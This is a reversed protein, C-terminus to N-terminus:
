KRHSKDGISRLKNELRRKGACETFNMVAGRSKVAVWDKGESCPTYPAGRYTEQSTTSLEANANDRLSRLCRFVDEAFDAPSLM